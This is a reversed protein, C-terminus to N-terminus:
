TNGTFVDCVKLTHHLLLVGQMHTVYLIIVPLLKSICEDPSVVRIRHRKAGIVVTDYSIEKLPEGEEESWKVRVQFPILVSRMKVVDDAYM